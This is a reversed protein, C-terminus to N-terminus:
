REWNCLWQITAVSVLAERAAPVPRLRDFAVRWQRGPAYEWHARLGLATQGSVNDRQVVLSQASDPSGAHEVRLAATRAVFRGGGSRLNQQSGSAGLTWHASPRWSVSLSTEDLRGQYFGGRRMYLEGFVARSASIEAFAEVYRWRAQGARVAVGPLPEFGEALRETERFTGVGFEDGQPTSWEINPGLYRSRESGDARKRLGSWLRPLVSHGGSLRQQWGLQLDAKDVGAEQVFGLAPEFREGIRRADLAFWPGYNRFALSAGHAGGRGMGANRSQLAWAFAEMTRGDFVDTDRLQYDVGLLSSGDRGDSQGQTGILGMRQTSGLGAAARAVAMLPTRADGPGREIQVALAGFDFAGASGAVKLGADLTRALGIRRSFFPLLEPEDGGLGGFSFRGADQTFFARKEERFLEFRSLNIQPDDFETDTADTNFTAVATVGPALAYFADLSPEVRHRRSGDGRRQSSWRLGPQMRLGWGQAAPMVAELLGADALSAVGRGELEAGHLRMREGSAAVYREVNLRWARGDAPAALATLPIAMELTWGQADRQTAAQWVADWGTQVVAGDFVLGDRQAGLANVQLWFGNRGSGQPDLVLTVHDDGDIAEDDRRLTRATVGTPAIARVAVYLTRGDHVLCLETRQTPAAGPEPAAQLFGDRVPAHAWAADDPTGDIRPGREVRTVYAGALAGLPVATLALALLAGATSYQPRRATM